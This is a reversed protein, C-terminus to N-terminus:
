KSVAAALDREAGKIFIKQGSMVNKVFHHGARFKRAFEDRTYVSPNVARGINREAKRLAPALDSIGIEGIVMLDVDSAAREEARAMSGYVFAVDVNKLMPSLSQKLVDCLGVTKLLVGRLEQLFPCDREAQFYVRNGDKWRRLIGARVLAALDRQLSSAPVGIHRALDRLYWPHAPDLLAAALISQRTKPLLADLPSKTRM